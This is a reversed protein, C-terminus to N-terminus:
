MVKKGKLQALLRKKTTQLHNRAAQFGQMYINLGKSTHFPVASNKIKTKSGVSLQKVGEVFEQRQEELTASIFDKVEIWLETSNPNTFIKDFEEEWSVSQKSM